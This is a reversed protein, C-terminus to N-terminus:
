SPRASYHAVQVPKQAPTCVQTSLAEYTYFAVAQVLQAAIARAVPHQFLQKFSAERADSISMRAPTTVLCRHTGNPGQVNFDDLLKPIFAKGPCTNPDSHPGM